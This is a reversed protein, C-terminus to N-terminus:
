KRYRWSIRSPSLDWWSIYCLVTDIQAWFLEIPSKHCRYSPHASALKIQTSMEVHLTSLLRGKKLFVQKRTKCRARHLWHKLNGLVGIKKMAICNKPSISWIILQCEELILVALRFVGPDAVSKFNWRYIGECLDRYKWNSKIPTPTLAM